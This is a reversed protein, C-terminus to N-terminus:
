SRVEFMVGSDAADCEARLDSAADFPESGFFDYFATDAAEGDMRDIEARWDPGYLGEQRAIWQATTMEWEPVDALEEAPRPEIFQHFGM